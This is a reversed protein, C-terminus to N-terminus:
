FFFDFAKIRKYVKKMRDTHVIAGSEDTVEVSVASKSPNEMGIRFNNYESGALFIVRLSEQDTKGVQSTKVPERLNNDVKAAMQAQAQNSTAMPQFALVDANYLVQGTM